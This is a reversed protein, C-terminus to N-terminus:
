EAPCFTPDTSALYEFRISVDDEIVVVADRGREWHEPLLFHQSDSRILYRLGGYCFRYASDDGDITQVTLGSGRLHLERESLLIVSPRAALDRVIAIANTTGRFNAYSSVLWFVLLLLIGAVLLRATRPIPDTGTSKTRLAAGYVCALAGGLLIAPVTPWATRFTVVGANAILGVLLGVAGVVVLGGGLVPAHASNIVRRHLLVAGLGLVAILLLPFYTSRVSRLLLDTFSLDLLGIEIGFYRFTAAARTWGFYFLLAGFLSAAGAFGAILEM